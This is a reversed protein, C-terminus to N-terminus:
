FQIIGSFVYQAPGALWVDSFHGSDCRFSVQLNGGKTCVRVTQQGNALHQQAAHYAIAAATAGTGCSYTEDEVGREYTRVHLLQDALIEVFNVNTGGPAFDASYRIKKGQEYVPFNAVSPVFLVVHPSGTDLFYGEQWTSMHAVDTMQLWVQEQEDIRARHLGDAAWFDANRHIMGLQAAFAVACRGGNGCFSGRKGDANFYIMEFAYVPHTQILILGDAGIGFRRHCLAAIRERDEVPFQQSRNDIMVFDNGTGQYKFFRIEM